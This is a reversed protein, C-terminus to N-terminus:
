EELLRALASKREPEPEAPTELPLQNHPALACIFYSADTPTSCRMEHPCGYCVEGGKYHGHQNMNDWLNQSTEEFVTKDSGRWRDFSSAHMIGKSDVYCSFRGEAPIAFNTNIGIEPRSLFFPLLGEGFAIGMGQGLARKITNPLVKHYTTRRMMRDQTARGMGPDYALLVLNIVRDMEDQLRILNELGEVVHRDAILHVNVQCTLAERLLKYHKRFWDFGKHTHYTMAVGGCFDNTAKIVEHSLKQGNTTYNPVTGLERAEKLIAPLDPHLTPEGGGCNHTLVGHQLAFTHTSSDELTLDFVEQPGECHISKVVIDPKVKNGSYPSCGIAEFSPVGKFLDPFVALVNSKGYLDVRYYTTEPLVRGQIKRKKNRGRFLSGVVGFRTGLLYVVEKALAESSTKLSVVFDVYRGGGSSKMRYCGDGDFLGRLASRVLELDEVGFLFNITKNRSGHGIHMAEFMLARWVSPECFEVTQGNEGNPRIASELGTIDAYIGVAQKAIGTEKKHLSLGRHTGEAVALGYLWMVNPTLTVYRPAMSNRGSLRVQTSTAVGGAQGRGVVKPLIYPALDITSPHPETVQLVRLQDLAHGLLQSAQVVGGGVLFPHDPTCTVSWGKTGKLRICERISKTVRTIRKPTGSGDFIKDGVTLQRVLRLGDPGFVETDGTLCAIQYPVTEFGKLVTAVLDRNGHKLRPKSDVYCYPCGFDCRNTIAIDVTEPSPSPFSEYRHPYKKRLAETVEYPLLDRRTSYEATNEVETTDETQRILNGTKPDFFSEYLTMGGIVLKMTRM